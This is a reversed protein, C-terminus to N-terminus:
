FDVVSQKRCLCPLYTPFKTTVFPCERMSLSLQLGVACADLTIILIIHSRIQSFGGYPIKGSFQTQHM